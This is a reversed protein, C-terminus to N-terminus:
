NVTIIHPGQSHRSPSFLIIMVAILIMHALDALGKTANYKTVTMGFTIFRGADGPFSKLVPMSNLSIKNSATEIVETVPGRPVFKPLVTSASLTLKAHVRIYRYTDRYFCM